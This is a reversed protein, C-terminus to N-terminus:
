YPWEGSRHRLLRTLPKLRLVLLVKILVSRVFWPLQALQRLARVGLAGQAHRAM